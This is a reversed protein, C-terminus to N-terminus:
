NNIRLEDLLIKDLLLFEEEKRQNLTHLFDKYVEKKEPDKKLFRNLFAVANVKDHWAGFLTGVENLREHDINIITRLQLQQKFINNLYYIDKLQTRIAHFLEQSINNKYLEKIRSFKERAFEHGKTLLYEAKIDKTNFLILKRIETLFILDDEKFSSKLKNYSKNESKLLYNIYYNNSINIEESIVDYLDIQVHLDRLRGTKKYIPRYKKIKDSASVRSSTLFELFQLVVKIRKLSIRFNHVAEADYVTKLTNYNDQIILSHKEFYEILM